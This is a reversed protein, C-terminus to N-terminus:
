DPRQLGPSQAWKALNAETELQRAKKLLRDQEVGFPMKRAEDRLKRAEEALLESPDKRSFFSRSPMASARISPHAGRRWFIM